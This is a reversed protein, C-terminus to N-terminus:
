FQFMRRAIFGCWCPSEVLFFFIIQKFNQIFNVAFCDTAFSIYSNIWILEASYVTSQLLSYNGTPWIRCHCIKLRPRLKPLSFIFAWYFEACIGLPLRSSPYLKSQRLNKTILLTQFKLYFRWWMLGQLSYQCLAAMSCVQPSIWNMTEISTPTKILM